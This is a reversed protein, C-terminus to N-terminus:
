GGIHPKANPKKVLRLMIRKSRFYSFTNDFELTVFSGAPIQGIGLDKCNLCGLFTSARSREEVIRCKDVGILNAKRGCVEVNRKAQACTITVKFDITLKDAVSLEWTFSEDGDLLYKRSVKVGALVEFSATTTGPALTFLDSGVPVKTVKDASGENTKGNTDPEEAKTTTDEVRTIRDKLQFWEEAYEATAFKGGQAPTGLTWHVLKADPQLEYYGVLHNWVDPLEGIADSSLWKFQNLDFYDATEVYEQTLASCKSNNFLMVSSWNLM